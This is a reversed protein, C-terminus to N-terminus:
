KSAYLVQPNTLQYLTYISRRDESLYSTLSGIKARVVFDTRALVDDFSLIPGDGSSSINIDSQAAGVQEPITPTQAVVFAEFLLAISVMVHLRMNVNQLEM